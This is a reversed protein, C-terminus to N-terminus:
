SGDNPCVRNFITETVSGKGVEGWDHSQVDRGTGAFSEGKAWHESFYNEELVRIRRDKCDYEVYSKISLHKTSGGRPLNSIELVRRMTNMPGTQRISETDFFKEPLSKAEGDIKVWEALAITSVFLLLLPLFKKM